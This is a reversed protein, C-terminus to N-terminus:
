VATTWSGLRRVTRFTQLKRPAKEEQVITEASWEDIEKREREETRRESGKKEGIMRSAKEDNNASKPM